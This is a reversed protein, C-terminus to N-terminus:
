SICCNISINKSKDHNNGKNILQELKTQHLIVDTYMASKVKKHKLLIKVTDAVEEPHYVETAYDNFDLGTDKDIGKITIYIVKTPDISAVSPYIHVQIDYGEPMLEQFDKRKYM